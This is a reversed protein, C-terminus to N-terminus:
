EQGCDKFGFEDALKNAKGLTGEGEVFAGPDEEGKEIGDELADFLENAQDEDESPTGLAKLGDLQKQIAPIVVNESLEELQAERLQSKLSIDHEKAYAKVEGEIEASGQKCLEDGRKVFEAKSINDSSSSGCGAVIAAVAVIGALLLIFRKSM